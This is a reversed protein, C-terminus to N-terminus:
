DNQTQELSQTFQTPVPAVLPQSQRKFYETTCHDVFTSINDESLQFKHNISQNSFKKIAERIYSGLTQEKKFQIDRPSLYKEFVSKSKMVNLHEPISVDQLLSLLDVRLLKCYQALIDMNIGRKGTEHQSYTSVPINFKSAFARASKYGQGIRQKKLLASIQQTIESGKNETANEMLLMRM